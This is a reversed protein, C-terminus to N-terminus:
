KGKARAANLYAYPDSIFITQVSCASVTLEDYVYPSIMSKWKTRAEAHIKIGAWQLLRSWFPITASLGLLPVDGMPQVYIEDFATSLAYDGQSQFTDAIAITRFPEFETNESLASTNETIEAAKEAASERRALKISLVADHLEEIQALGLTYSPVSPVGTTTFDAIM